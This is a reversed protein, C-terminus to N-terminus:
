EDDDENGWSLFSARVRFTLDLIIMLDRLLESAEMKTLTFVHKEGTEYTLGVKIHKGVRQVQPNPHEAM